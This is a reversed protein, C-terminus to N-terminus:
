DDAGVLSSIIILLDMLDIPFLFLSMYVSMSFVCYVASGRGRISETVITQELPDNIRHRKIEKTMFMYAKATDRILINSAMYTLIFDKTFLGIPQEVTPLIFDTHLTINAM